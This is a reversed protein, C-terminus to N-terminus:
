RGRPKRRRAPKLFRFEVSDGHNAVEVKMGDRGARAYLSAVFGTASCKFDKGKHVRWFKGNTWKDWDYRQRASRIREIVEAM